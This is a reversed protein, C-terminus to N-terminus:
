PEEVVSLQIFQVGAISHGGNSQAMILEIVIPVGIEFPSSNTGFTLLVGQDTAAVAQGAVGMEVGSAPTGGIVPPTNLGLVWGNSTESGGSVSLNTGTVAVATTEFVDAGAGNTFAINTSVRIFGSVKPTFSIAAILSGSPGTAPTFTESVTAPVSVNRNRSAAQASGASSQPYTERANRGRGIVHSM